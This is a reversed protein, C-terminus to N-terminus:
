EEEEGEWKECDVIMGIHKYGTGGIACERFEGRNLAHKCTYCPIEPQNMYCRFDNM